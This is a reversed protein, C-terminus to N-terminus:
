DRDIVRDFNNEDILIEREPLSGTTDEKPIEESNEDKNGLTLSNGEPGPVLPVNVASLKLSNREISTLVVTSKKTEILKTQSGEYKKEISQDTRITGMLAEFHESFYKKIEFEEREFDDTNKIVVKLDEDEKKGLSRITLAGRTYDVSYSIGEVRGLAFDALTFGRTGFSSIHDPFSFYLNYNKFFDDATQEKTDNLTKDDGYKNSALILEHLKKFQNQIEILSQNSSDIARYEDLEVYNLRLNSEGFVYYNDDFLFKNRKAQAIKAQPNKALIDIKGKKIYGLKYLVPGLSPIQKKIDEKKEILDEKSFYTDIYSTELGQYTKKNFLFTIEKGIPLFIEIGESNNSEVLLKKVGDQEIKNKFKLFTTVKREIIDSTRTLSINIDTRAFVSEVLAEINVNVLKTFDVRNNKKSTETSPSNAGELLALLEDEDFFEDDEREEDDEKEEEEPKAEDTNSKDQVYKVQDVKTALLEFIQNSMQKLFVDDQSGSVNMKVSTNSLANKLAAKFKVGAQIMKIPASVGLESELNNIFEARNFSAKINGIEHSASFYYDIKIDLGQISNIEKRLDSAVRKDKLDFRIKIDKETFDLFNSDHDGINVISRSISPISIEARYVPLYDFTKIQNAVQKGQNYKARVSELDCTTEFFSSQQRDSLAKINKATFHLRFELHPSSEDSGKSYSNIEFMNQGHRNISIFPQPTIYFTGNDRSSKLIVLNCDYSLDIDAKEFQVGKVGGINASLTIQSSIITFLMTIITFIRSLDM